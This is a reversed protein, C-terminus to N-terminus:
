SFKHFPFYVVRQLELYTLRPAVLNLSCLSLVVQSNNFSLSSGLVVLHRHYYSFFIDWCNFSFGFYWEQCYNTTCYVKKYSNLSFNFMLTAQQFIKFFGQNKSNWLVCRYYGNLGQFELPYM